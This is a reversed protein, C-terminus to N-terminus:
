ELEEDPPDPEDLSPHDIPMRFKDIFVQMDDIKLLIYQPLDGGEDNINVLKRYKRFDDETEEYNYSFYNNVFRTTLSTKGVKKQGMIAIRYIPTFKKEEAM